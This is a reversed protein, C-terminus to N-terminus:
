PWIGWVKALGDKSVSALLKGDSSFSLQELSEQHAKWQHVVSGTTVDILFIDGSSFGIAMLKNDPSFVSQTSYFETGSAEFNSTSFTKGTTIDIFNLVIKIKIVGREFVGGETTIYVLMRGDSTITARIGSPNEKEYLKERNELDVVLITSGIIRNGSIKELNLLGIRGDESFEINQPYSLGDWWGKALSNNTIDWASFKGLSGTVRTSYFLFDENPSIGYLYVDNNSAITTLLKGEGRLGERIEFGNGEANAFAVYIKGKQTILIRHEIQLCTSDSDFSFKCFTDGEDNWNWGKIVLGQGEKFFQLNDISSTPIEIQNDDLQSLEITKIESTDSLSFIPVETDVDKSGILEGDAINWATITKSSSSSDTSKTFIAIQQSSSSFHLIQAYNNTKVNPISLFRIVKGATMDWILVRNGQAIALFNGDPSFVINKYPLSEFKTWDSTQWIQTEGGSILALYKGDPSFEPKVGSLEVIMEGTKIDWVQTNNCEIDYEDKCISIAAYSGDSSLDTFTMNNETILKFIVSGQLDRVEVHDYTTVLWINGNSSLKLIEPRNVYNTYQPIVDIHKILASTQSDYIYVGGATAVFVLREDSTLKSEIVLPTGYRAIEHITSANGASLILSPYPFPTGAHIPLEPTPTPTPTLTPTSTPTATSTATNTPPIPTRTQTAPIPALTATPNSQNGTPSCAPLILVELILLAVWKQYKSIKGM